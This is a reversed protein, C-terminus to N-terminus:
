IRCNANASLGSLIGSSEGPFLDIGARRRILLSLDKNAQVVFLM